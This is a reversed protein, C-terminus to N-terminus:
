QVLAIIQPHAITSADCGNTSLYSSGTINLTKAIVATCDNATPRTTGSFSVDTKPFYMTGGLKLVGNGGISVSGTAQDDILVGNLDTSFANTTPASVDVNGGNITLRSTGLLVLTIGTGTVTGSFSIASDKFIYTGGTQFNLTGGSAVSFNGTFYYAQTGTPAQFNVTQGNNV